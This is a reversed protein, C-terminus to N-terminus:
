GLMLSIRGFMQLCRQGSWMMCGGATLAEYFEREEKTKFMKQDAFNPKSKEQQGERQEVGTDEIM